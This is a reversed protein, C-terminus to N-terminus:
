KLYKQRNHTLTVRRKKEKTSVYYKEQHLHHKEMPFSPREGHPRQSATQAQQSSTDQPNQRRRHRGGSCRRPGRRSGRRRGREGPAAAGRRPVRPRQGGRRAGAAGAASEAEPVSGGHQLV